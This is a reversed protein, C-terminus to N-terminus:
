LGELFDIIDEMTENTDDDLWNWGIAEKLAIKLKRNESELDAAKDALEDMHWESLRDTRQGFIIVSLSQSYLPKNEDVEVNNRM